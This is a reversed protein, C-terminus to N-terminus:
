TRRATDSPATGASRDRPPLRNGNGTGVTVPLVQTRSVEPFSGNAPPSGNSGSGGTPPSGNNQHEEDRLREARRRRLLLVDDILVTALFSIVGGAALVAAVSQLQGDVSSAVSDPADLVDITVFRAPAVGADEQRAQLEARARDVVAAGTSVASEEDAATVEISLFASRPLATVEFDGTVGRALLEDRVSSSNLVYGLVAASYTQTGYPNEVEVVPPGDDSPQETRAPSVTVVASSYYEPTVWSGVTLAAFLTAALLPAFVYWRRFVAALLRWVDV